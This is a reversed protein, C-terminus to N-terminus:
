QVTALSVLCCDSFAFLQLLSNQRFTSLFSESSWLIKKRTLCRFISSSILIGFCWVRWVREGWTKLLLITNVRLFRENSCSAINVILVCHFHVIVLYMIDMLSPQCNSLKHSPVWLVTVVRQTRNHPNIKCFLYWHDKRQFLRFQGNYVPTWLAPNWQISHHDIELPRTAFHISDKIRVSPMITLSPWNSFHHPPPPHTPPAFTFFFFM